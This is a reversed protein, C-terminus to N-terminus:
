GAPRRLGPAPRRTQIPMPWASEFGGLVVGAAHQGAVQEVVAHRGHGLARVDLHEDDLADIRVPRRRWPLRSPMSAPKRGASRSATCSAAPTSQLLKGSLGSRMASNSSAFCAAAAPRACRPLLHSSRAARDACAAGPSCRRPRHASASSPACGSAPPVSRNGLRRRPRPVGRTSTSRVAIAASSAIVTRAVAAQADAGRRRQGRQCALGRHARSAPTTRGGGAENGARRVALGGRQAAVQALVRAAHEVVLALPPAGAIAVAQLQAAVFAVHDDLAVAAVGGVVAVDRRRQDRQIRADLDGAGAACARQRQGRQEDLVARAPQRKAGASHSVAM